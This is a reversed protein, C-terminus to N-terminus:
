HLRADVEAIADDILKNGDAATMQKAIVDRAAQVAVVAATDRVEKVASAEASAIQDTAAAVRREISTKLDARAQEAAAEADKKAQAVIKDAQGQVEKQKREYSALLTQAEERLARAENIESQIGSARDDLMKSIMGPVKFYFLVGIFLIFAILVILDTNSLKWFEASFPNKSAAMAPGATLMALSTLAFYRM